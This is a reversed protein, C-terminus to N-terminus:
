NNCCISWTTRFKECFINNNTDVELYCLGATNVIENNDDIYGKFPYSPKFIYDEPINSVKLGQNLLYFNLQNPPSNQYVKSILNLQVYKKNNFYVYNISKTEINKHIQVKFDITLDRYNKWKYNMYWSKSVFPNYINDKKQM